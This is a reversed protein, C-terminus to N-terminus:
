RRLLYLLTPIGWALGVLVWEWGDHGPRSTWMMFRLQLSNAYQPRLRTRLEWMPLISAKDYIGLANTLLATGWGILMLFAVVGVAPVVKATALGVVAIVVPVARWRMRTPGCSSGGVRRLDSATGLRLATREVSGVM